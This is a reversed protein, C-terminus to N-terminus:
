AFSLSYRRGDDPLDEVKSWVSSEHAHELKFDRAVVPAPGPATSQHLAGEGYHPGGHRGQRFVRSIDEGLLQEEVRPEAISPEASHLFRGRAGDHWGYIAANFRSQVEEGYLGEAAWHGAVIILYKDWAGEQGQCTGFAIVGALMAVRKMTKM